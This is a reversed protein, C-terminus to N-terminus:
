FKQKRNKMKINLRKSNLVFENMYEHISCNKFAMKVFIIEPTPLISKSFFKLIKQNLYEKGSTLTYLILLLQKSM